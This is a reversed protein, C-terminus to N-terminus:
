LMKGGIEFALSDPDFPSRGTAHSLSLGYERVEAIDM